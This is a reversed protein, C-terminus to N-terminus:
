RPASPGSRSAQAAPSGAQDLRPSGAAVGSALGNGAEAVPGNGAAAGDPPGAAPQAPRRLTVAAVVAGALGLLGAVLFSLNLGAAAAAHIVGDLGARQVAPAHALVSAAQGGTVAPAVARRAGGAALVTAARAAFISGLLAVGVTFGLQRATNVAGAAMGGSRPPVASMANSVLTPTALGVGVGAAILGPLLAVSGSGASLTGQALAGAGILALGGGVVWRPNATHLFRGALASVAFAAVSLPASGLLGARIPSLGLVSQLWLSSYPFYAFAALNLLLGATLVGAFAPRRLLALDLLPSASRHEIVAFGAWAALGAGLLGLTQGSTWGAASVRILAYTVAAAGTTFTVLGPVDLRSGRQVRDAGFARGTAVLAAVCVPLNVFFIWRWSLGQTLVGGLIPGAAAAAGSVAGWIGFAVGRDRGRYASNLLAITTAYMAAGGIGQVGRAAILEATSRALCSGLSALAFLALGGLYLRRRGYLDGLAGMALLLAALILAYIDVVWELASFSTRLDVAMDPLAVTVITVDVLLMFTGLCVAILPMWKRM